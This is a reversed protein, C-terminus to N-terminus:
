HAPAEDALLLYLSAILLVASFATWTWYAALPSLMTLPEMLWIFTPPYTAYRVPGLNVGAQAAIPRLDVWYPGGHERMALSSAYFLSFDLSVTKLRFHWTILYLQYAGAALAALVVLRRIRATDLTM